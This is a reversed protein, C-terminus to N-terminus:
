RYRSACGTAEIDNSKNSIKRDNDIEQTDTTLDGSISAATSPCRPPTVPGSAKHWAAKRSCIQTYVGGPKLGASQESARRTMERRSSSSNKELDFIIGVARKVHDVHEQNKHFGQAEIVKHLRIITNDDRYPLYEQCFEAGMGGAICYVMIDRERRSLPLNAGTKSELIDMEGYFNRYLHRGICRHSENKDDFIGGPLSRIILGVSPEDTMDIDSILECVVDASLGHIANGPVDPHKADAYPDTLGIAAKKILDDRNEPKFAVGNASNHSTVARSARRSSRSAPARPLPLEVATGSAFENSHDSEHEHAIALEELQESQEFNEKLETTVDTAEAHEFREARQQPLHDFTSKPSRKSGSYHRRCM